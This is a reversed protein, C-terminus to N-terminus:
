PPEYHPRRGSHRASFSATNRISNCSGQVKLFIPICSCFKGHLPIGGRLGLLRSRGVPYQISVDRPKIPHARKHEARNADGSHTFAVSIDFGELLFRNMKQSSKRFILGQKINEIMEAIKTGETGQM